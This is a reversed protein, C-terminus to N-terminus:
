SPTCVEARDYKATHITYVWDSFEGNHSLNPPPLDPSAAVPIMHAVMQAYTAGAAGEMASPLEDAVEDEPAVASGGRVHESDPTTASSSSPRVPESLLFWAGIQM